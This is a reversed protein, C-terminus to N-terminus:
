ITGELLRATVRACAGADPVILEPPATVRGAAAADIAALVQAASDAGLAGAAEHRARYRDTDPAGRPDWVIGVAGLVMGDDLVSSRDSVVAWSRSLQDPVDRGTTTEADLAAFWGPALLALKPHAFLVPRRGARRAARALGLWPRYFDDLLPDAPAGADIARFIEPSWTPALLVRDRDRGLLPHLWDHRPFGTLWVERETLTYSTHDATLGEYEAPTAALVVDLRMLNFWRWMDRMTIGHQLFVVRQDGRTGGSALRRSIVPDGVDALLLTGAQRWTSAFAAETPDVLDFGESALRAWDPCAREVAFLHRIGPAHERAHRYLPEANDGASDHRDMYLWTPATQAPATLAPANPGASPSSGPTEPGPPAAQGGSVLPRLIRSARRRLRAVRQAARRGPGPPPAPPRRMGSYPAVRRQLGDVTATITGTPLWVIREHVLVDDFYTHDVTKTCTPAVPAGDVAWTERPTPGTHFYTVQRDPRFSRASPLIPDPLAAGVAALLAARRNLALPTSSYAEIEHAPVRALVGRLLLAVESRQAATLHQAAYRLGRDADTVQILRRIVFQHVWSPTPGTAQLWDPILAGLLRRYNEVGAWPGPSSAAQLVIAPGDHLHLRNGTAAIHRILVGIGDDPGGAGDWAPLGSRPVTLLVGSITDPFVHPEASLDVTRSGSAFRWGLPRDDRAGDPWTTLTRTLVTRARSRPLAALYGAEATDGARVLLVRGGDLGALARSVAEPHSCTIAEVDPRPTSLLSSRTARADGPGVILLRLPPASM